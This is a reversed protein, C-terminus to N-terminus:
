GKLSKVAAERLESLIEGMVRRAFVSLRLAVAASTSNILESIRASFSGKIALVTIFIDDDVSADVPLEVFVSRGVNGRAPPRTEAGVWGFMPEVPLRYGERVRPPQAVSTPNASVSLQGDQVLSAAQKNFENLFATFLTKGADDVQAQSLGSKTFFLARLTAAEAEPDPASAAHLTQEILNIADVTRDLMFDVFPQYNGKDAEGLSALYTAKHEVLILLPVSRDRYTFTSALARAVRGNGDAFPHIYVLAYHVFAAQHVPHANLFATERVEEVLRHMEHPVMDVPAYAHYSGDRLRVHNPLLKYQGKPLPQNQWGVETLVQYSDQSRCIIEHLSRIWMESLPERSTALDMVLDYGAMQSQILSTVKEGKAELAAQWSASQLAVTMTFGRDVEYLGEIAGTDVAAARMAIDHARRLQERPIEVPAPLLAIASDWLERNVQAKLWESFPPFPRYIADLQYTDM